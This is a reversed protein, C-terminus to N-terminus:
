FCRRSGLGDELFGEGWCEVFGFSGVKLYILRYRDRGFFSRRVGVEFSYM